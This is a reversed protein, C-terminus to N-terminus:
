FKAQDEETMELSIDGDKIKKFLSFQGKFKIFNM